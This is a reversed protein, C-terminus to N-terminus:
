MDLGEGRVELGGGEGNSVMHNPELTFGRVREKERHREKM